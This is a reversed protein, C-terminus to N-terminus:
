IIIKSKCLETDSNNQSNIFNFYDVLDKLMIPLNTNSCASALLRLM